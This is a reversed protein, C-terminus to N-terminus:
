VGSSNTRAFRTRPEAQAVSYGLPADGGAALPAYLDDNTAMAPSDLRTANGGIVSSNMGARGLYNYKGVQSGTTVAAPRQPTQVYTQNQAYTNESGASSRGVDEKSRRFQTGYMGNSDAEQSLRGRGNAVVGGNPGGNVGGANKEAVERLLERAVEHADIENIGAEILLNKKHEVKEDHDTDQDPNATEYELAKIFKYFGAAVISGLIPGLWYIWHYTDFTRDQRM